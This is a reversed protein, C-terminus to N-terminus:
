CCGVGVCVFICVCVRATHGAQAIFTPSSSGQPVGGEIFNGKEGGELAFARHARGLDHEYNLCNRIQNKLNFLLSLRIAFVRYNLLFM